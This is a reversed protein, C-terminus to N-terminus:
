LTQIYNYLYKAWDQHSIDTPHGTVLYKNYLAREEPTGTAQIGYKQIIYEKFHASKPDCNVWKNKDIAKALFQKDFDEFQDFANFMLYDIGNQKFYTQLTLIKLLFNNQIYNTRGYLEDASPHNVGPRKQVVELKYEKEYYIELRTKATWGIIAFIDKKGQSKLWEISQITTSCISSNSDGSQGANWTEVGLRKGLVKPWIDSNYFKYLQRTNATPPIDNNKYYKYIQGFYPIIDYWDETKTATWSLDQAPHDGQTWSDGNTFLIM